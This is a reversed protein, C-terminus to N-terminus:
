RKSRRRRMRTEKLQQVGYEDIPDVTYLVEGSTTLVCPSDAMHSSVLVKEIKGPFGRGQEPQDKGPRPVM